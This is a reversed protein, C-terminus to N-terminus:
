AGNVKRRLLTAEITLELLAEELRAKDAELEAIRPDKPPRGRGRKLAPLAAERVVKRIRRLDWREIGWRRCVEADTLEPSEAELFVQFKEEASLRRKRRVREGM